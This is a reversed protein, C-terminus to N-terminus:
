ARYPQVRYDKFLGLTKYFWARSWRYWGFGPLKRARMLHRRIKKEVWDKVISM